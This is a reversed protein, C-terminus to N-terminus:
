DIRHNKVRNRGSKKADYLKTDAIKFLEDFSINCGENPYISVAGISITITRKLTLIGQVCKRLVECKAVCESETTNPLLVIFEEGGFRALIGKETLSNTLSTAVIKLALDGEQHGFDDNYSKFYDIDIVALSLPSQYKESDVKIENFLSMFKSRNYIDTLSDYAAMKELEKNAIKLAERQNIIDLEMKKREDISQIQSIYYIANNNEDKIMSVSLLCWIHENNITIYRKELQYSPIDGKKLSDLLKLDTDLDDEHTIMQFDISLLHEKTYGLMNTLSQNVKIWRGEESVIAMGISSNDFIKELIQNSEILSKIIEEKEKTLIEIELLSAIGEAMLGIFEHDESTFNEFKIKRSSFNITGWINNRVFIPAAIYSELSMSLYVPHNKLSPNHGADNVSIIRQETVVSQCYTDALDFVMGPHIDYYGVINIIIYKDYEIKSIIGIELGFAKIGESIITNFTNELNSSRQVLSEYLSHIRDSHIKQKM